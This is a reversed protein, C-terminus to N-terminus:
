RESEKDNTRNSIRAEVWKRVGTLPFRYTKGVRFHPPAEGKTILEFIRWVAIGTAASLEHVTLTRLEEVASAM